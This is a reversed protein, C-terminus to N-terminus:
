LFDDWLTRYTILDPYLRLIEMRYPKISDVSVLKNFLPWWSLRHRSHGYGAKEYGDRQEPLVLHHPAVHATFAKHDDCIARCVPCMIKIGTITVHPATMPHDIKSPSPTAVAAEGSMLVHHKRRFDEAVAYLEESDHSLVHNAFKALSLWQRCVLCQQQDLITATLASVLAYSQSHRHAVHAHVALSELDWKRPPCRPDPCSLNDSHSHSARLHNTLQYARPFATVARQKFCGEAPCVFPRSKDHVTQFHRKLNKGTYPCGEHPCEWRRATRM